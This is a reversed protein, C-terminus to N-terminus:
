PLIAPDKGANPDTKLWALFEAPALILIGRFPTLVLLDRDGSVICSAAGAIALELLKDDKPDRCVRIEELPDILAAERLLMALFRQRLERDVYRDFKPRGLVESLEAFTAASLLLQGADLAAYFAQGPISNEFLLASVTANSDFVFRREPSM